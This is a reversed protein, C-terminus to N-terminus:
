PSFFDERIGYEKCFKAWKGPHADSIMTFIQHRVVADSPSIPEVPPPFENMGCDTAFRYLVLRKHRDVEAHTLKPLPIIEM